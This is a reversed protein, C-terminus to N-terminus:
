KANLVDMANLLINEQDTIKRFLICEDLKIQFFMNRFNKCVIVLGKDTIKTNCYLVPPKLEIINNEENPIMIWRVYTGSRLDDLEDIYIYNKLKDSYEFVKEKTIPLEKLISVNMERLSQHTHNLLIENKDNDLAKLLKNVDLEEEM